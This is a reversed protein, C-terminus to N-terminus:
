LSLYDDDTPQALFQLDDGGSFKKVESLFANVDGNESTILQTTLFTMGTKCSLSNEVISISVLADVVTVETRQMLVSIASAIRVLTDLVGVSVISSPPRKSRTAIFYKRLLDSAETPLGPPSVVESRLLKVLASHLEPDKASKFYKNTPPLSNVAREYDFDQSEDAVVIDSKHIIEAAVPCYGCLWINSEPGKRKKSEPFVVPEQYGAEPVPRICRQINIMSFRVQPPPSVLMELEDKRLGAVASAVLFGESAKSFIPFKEIQFHSKSGNLSCTELFPKLSTQSSVSAFNSTHQQVYHLLKEFLVSSGSLLVNVPTFDTIALSSSSILFAIRLQFLVNKKPIEQDDAVLWYGLTNVATILEKYQLSLSLDDSMSPYLLWEGRPSKEIDLASVGVGGAVSHVNHCVMKVQSGIRLYDKAKKLLYFPIVVWYSDIQVMYISREVPLPETLIKKESGRTDTKKHFILFIFLGM